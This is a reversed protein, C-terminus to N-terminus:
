NYAACKEKKKTSRLSSFLIGLQVHAEKFKVNYRWELFLKLNRGRSLGAGIEANWNNLKANKLSSNQYSLWQNFGSHLISYGNWKGKKILQAHIAAGITWEHVKNFSFFYSAQPVIQIKKQSRLVCRAGSGFSASQFNYIGTGGWEIQAFAITPLLIVLLNVVRLNM